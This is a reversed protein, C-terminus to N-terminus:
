GGQSKEKEINEYLARLAAELAELEKDTRSCIMRIVAKKFDNSGNLAFGVLEAIEDDKSQIPRPDGIGDLLWREDVNFQSCMLLFLPRKQEPKKLRNGEINNIEDRSVGLLDAFDKQSMDNLITTRLYRVRDHLEM